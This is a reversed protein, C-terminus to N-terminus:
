GETISFSHTIKTVGALTAGVSCYKEESLQIAREVKAPDLGKGTIRYDLHATAIARPHEERQQYSVQVSVGTIEMRMKQGISVMDIGTCGALAFMLLEVPQYGEENGGAQKSGDTTITHGFRSVGTFKLGGQWDMRIDVYMGGAAKKM